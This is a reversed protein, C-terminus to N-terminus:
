VRELHAQIRLRDAEPGDIGRDDSEAAVLLVWGLAVSLM